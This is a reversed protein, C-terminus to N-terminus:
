SRHACNHQQYHLPEQSAKGTGSTISKPWWWDAHGGNSVEQRNTKICGSVELDRLVRWVGTRVVARHKPDANGCVYNIIQCMRFRRDPHTAMLDMVEKAYKM